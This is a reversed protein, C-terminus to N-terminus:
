ANCHSSTSVGYLKENKKNLQGTQFNFTNIEYSM